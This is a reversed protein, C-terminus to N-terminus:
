HFSMGQMLLKVRDWIEKSVKHHNVIAYVDLPQGQLVINTAKLDYDAQLNESASLEEYKKKKTTNNEEVIPWILPGNNGDAKFIQFYSKKGEQYIKYDVITPSMSSLPTADITVEGGDDLIIELCKKLEESEKDDEVEHKTSREQKLDDGRRKLSDEQTIEAEAQKSSEEVLETRFDVFTNVKKMAKDFLEQIKAFSKKKLSRLKWGDMNILYASMINRQQAKTPPINRKEEARKATFFKRRKELFQMFLKAKKAETLEEQEEAQSRQALEYDRLDDAVDFLMKAEKVIVGDDNVGFIDKNTHVNVLYIDKNEDIDAIRGQYLRKLKPTRSRQRKELKKVRKKLSEIEMAQTTKTTELDLVRNLLNTCQEMLETLKMSDEGTQPINVGLGLNGLHSPFSRPLDIGTRVANVKLYEAETTSNAIMTQKKCQWSILRCGLYQCGGTTSKRDLSAGAYDSDIYAALDFPSDKPYWLGLKHHGKLYWARPAQHVGYLAKKVKYVKNPFDHDEFGSPQYVYVEEKIKVYLFASEVNMQYVVFDKFFAYDLFLRIAKIRAVPSFVEDYDIREEQTQGQAVLRAKNRIVIGRKDKKNKKPEEQSLFCAFLCNQLDKHNTGKHMTTGFGHEELNKSMTRTQITSHLDGIVQDIPHDKHIRTTPTTSVQITTNLNNMDAEAGNDEDKNSITFTHIDELELMKPDILLENYSNPSVVNIDQRPDEDVKKGDDSSPQFGVDQSSKSEADDSAKTCANGNSQNGVIIPKYKMSKTLADIDFLWNPRIGGFAVYGKDIEKYDTLYSMNRIMHRSCGSGIVGKDQLDQQPNGLEPKDASAKAKSIEDVLKKVISEELGSLDPKPPLFNGTYPTPVVNYRLGGLGNCSVLASSAPTEIPVSRRTSEKNKTDQSRPARCERAFHGRKHCNYCEVKSKDFGITENGSISFKRRTNKLFRRARITLMAMQWRLDIEELDNPHIQQLDENDLQPSRQAKEEATTPAITTEVWVDQVDVDADAHSVSCYLTV